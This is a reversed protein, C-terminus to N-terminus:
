SIINTFEREIAYNCLATFHGAVDPEPYDKMIESLIQIDFETDPSEPTMLYNSLQAGVTRYYLKEVASQDEPMEEVFEYNTWGVLRLMEPVTFMNPVSRRSVVNLERIDTASARVIARAAYDVPILNLGSTEHMLIRIHQDKYATKARYFFAGFLYFVLFRPIVHYPYDVLRGCIISPRLIQCPIGYSGCIEAIEKETQVKYREYHNRYDEESRGENSTM